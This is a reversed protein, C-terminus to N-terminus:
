LIETIYTRAVSVTSYDILSKDLEQEVAQTAQFTTIAKVLYAINETKEKGSIEDVAVAKVKVCWFQAEDCDTRDLILVTQFKARSIGAVFVDNGTANELVKMEADGFTEADVCIQEKVRLMTGDEQMRNSAVRCIFFSASRAQYNEKM